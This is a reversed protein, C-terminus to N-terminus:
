AGERWRSAPCTSKVYSTERDSAAQWPASSSTSAPCPMCACVTTRGAHQAAFRTQHHAARGAAACGLAFHVRVCALQLSANSCPRATTYASFLISRGCAPAGGGGGGCGGCYCVRREGHPAHRGRKGHAPARGRADHHGCVHLGDGALQLGHTASLRVLHQVHGGLRACVHVQHERGDHLSDGAVCHWAGASSVATELPRRAGGAHRAPTHRRRGAVRVRRQPQQQKVGHVVLEPAHHRQDLHPRKAGM